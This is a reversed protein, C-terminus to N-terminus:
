RGTVALNESRMRVGLRRLELAALADVTESDGSRWAAVPDTNVKTLRRLPQNALARLALLDRGATDSRLGAAASARRIWRLRLPLWIALVVIVPGALLALSMAWALDHVLAVQERGADALSRAADAAKDFPTSLHGGIGPVKDVTSGADHLGGAMDDGAGSLKQGPVALKLVLHYLKVALWIWFWLWAVIFLDTFLQRIRTAPVDAYIKM